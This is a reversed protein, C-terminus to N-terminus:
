NIDNGRNPFLSTYGAQYAPDWPKTGRTTSAQKAAKDEGADDSTAAKDDVPVIVLLILELVEGEGDRVNDSM